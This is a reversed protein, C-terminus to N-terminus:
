LNFHVSCVCKYVWLYAAAPNTFNVTKFSLLSHSVHELMEQGAEGAQETNPKAM